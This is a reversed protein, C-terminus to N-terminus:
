IQAAREPLDVGFVVYRELELPTYSALNYDPKVPPISEPDDPNAELTLMPLSRWGYRRQKHMACTIFGDNDFELGAEVIGIM